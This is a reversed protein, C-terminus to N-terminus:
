TSPRSFLDPSPPEDAAILQAHGIMSGDALLHCVEIGRAILAPTVLHTRHCNLPDKEACMIAIRHTEMGTTLREIAINFAPSVAILDRAPKGERWLAPDKPRGGLADGMWVYAIGTKTLASKLEERRYQPWRKSWPASRVDALATIDAGQLLDIFDDIPYNSHGITFIM